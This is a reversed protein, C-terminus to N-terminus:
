RVRRLYGKPNFTLQFKERTRDAEFRHDKYLFAEIAEMPGPGEDSYLPHGNMITDEVVLYGGIHVLPAYAELEAFVHGASHDSDLVVMIRAAEKAERRVEDIIAADTSSGLLYRLRPHSPKEVSSFRGEPIDITLIKGKGLLDCMSALYLASGGNATGTEIILDPKTEYLIEQYIWLDLPLKMVPVGMWYTDQWTGGGTWGAEHYARLFASTLSGEPRQAEWLYAQLREARKRQREEKKRQRDLRTRTKALSQELAAVKEANPDLMRKLRRLKKALRPYKM